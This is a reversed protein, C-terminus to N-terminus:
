KAENVLNNINFHNNYKNLCQRFDELTKCKSFGNLIIHATLQETLNKVIEATNENPLMQIVERTIVYINKHGRNRLYCV